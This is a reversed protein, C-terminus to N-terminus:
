VRGAPAFDHIVEHNLEETAGSDGKQQLARQISPTM